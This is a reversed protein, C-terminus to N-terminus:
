NSDMLKKLRTEFFHLDSERRLLVREPPIGESAKIDLEIVCSVWLRKAHGSINIRPIMNTNKPESAIKIRGLRDV